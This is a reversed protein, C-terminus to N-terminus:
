TELRDYFDTNTTVNYALFQEYFSVPNITKLFLARFLQNYKVNLFHMLWGLPALIRPYVCYHLKLTVRFEDSIARKSEDCSIYHVQLISCFWFLVVLFFSGSFSMESRFSFSCFLIICFFMLKLTFQYICDFLLL